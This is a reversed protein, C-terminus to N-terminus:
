ASPWIWYRSEAFETHQMCSQFRNDLRLDLLQLGVRQVSCFQTEELTFYAQYHAIPAIPTPGIACTKM